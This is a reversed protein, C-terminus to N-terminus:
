ISAETVGEREKVRKQMVKWTPREMDYLSVWLAIATSMVVDDHNDRGVINGMSGDERREYIRLEQYCTEDPENWLKDDVAAILNDIIQVKTLKNTQFGFKMVIKDAVEESGTSRQYLNEYFDAIEEILTAFHDGETNSNRERDATNSEIVLLADDYFHALAAAKWALLDHRCHGRWRAVVQPIGGKMEPMLGKRDIVTMVTYDSGQSKGGIDVAVVYRNKINLINNNPLNWIKLDGDECFDIQAKLYFSKSKKMGYPLRIDARYLPERLYREKLEDIAYQDFILNGSNRFAEVPDIPAETAMYAHNRFKNRTHRYWNIAQFCAGLKWMRWFFRGSERFGKPKAQSDKNVLLWRAFEYRNDVKEMDHEIHFFPVFIFKYADNNDPNMASQCKDYFFGSMGRGTSEFIEINDPIRLISGSVSSLVAEPDHEDSQKWYAVESYHACHFNSGRVNDYNDFSAVTITSTRVPKRGDTVIFDDTSGEYPSMQLQRGPLGITWGKQKEIAKRYMAKIKKSTAKVQSLVISNWGDPHRFDQMWKIYLQSLTSGGWQRAKLIIVFIPQNSKRLSEFLALLRRQPYNLRFPVMMGTTKDEIKDTLYLAFEPDERMRAKCIEFSVATSLQESYDKGWVDTIYKQISGVSVVDKLVRNLLCEKPVYMLPYIMDPIEIRVRNEFDYCGKGTVPDYEGFIERMREDDEAILEEIKRELEEETM